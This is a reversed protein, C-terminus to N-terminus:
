LEVELENFRCGYHKLVIYDKIMKEASTKAGACNKLRQERSLKGNEDAKAICQSCIKFCWCNRCERETLQSVNLLKKAQTLDFGDYINGICFEDSNENVRECPFIKGDVTVFLRQIGPLCQGSANNGIDSRVIDREALNFKVSEIYGRLLRPQYNKFIKTCYYLMTKFEEYRSDILYQHNVSTDTKRNNTNVFNGRVMSNKVMDYTLFFRDAAQFDHQLDIVANFSLKELFNPSIREIMKLKDMVVKFTGRSNDAFVRNGDQVNEPGDLSIMMFFNNDIFFRLIEEDLLTANTTIVFVQKKGKFLQKIYYVCKKILEFELLPEGGYFGFSVQDSCKSHQYLFDISEKATHWDMRKNAHIRNVYSGSYVCYKCRLNCNQTVQLTMTSLNNQYLDELLNTEFHTIESNETECLFGKSKLYTLGKQVNAPLVEDVIDLETNKLYEYIEKPIKIIANTNVDYFYGQGYLQFLHINAKFM